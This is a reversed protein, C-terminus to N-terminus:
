KGKQKPRGSNIYRDYAEVFMERTMVLQYPTDTGKPTEPYMPIYIGDDNIYPEHTTFEVQRLM